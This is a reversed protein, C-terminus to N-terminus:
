GEPMRPLGKKCLLIVFILWGLVPLLLWLYAKPGYGADRLRRKTNRAIPICWLVALVISAYIAIQNTQETSFPLLVSLLILMVIVCCFCSILKICLDGWFAGASMTEKARLQELIPYKSKPM